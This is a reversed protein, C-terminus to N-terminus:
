SSGPGGLAAIQQAFEAEYNREPLKEGVTACAPQRGGVTPMGPRGCRVTVSLRPVGAELKIM